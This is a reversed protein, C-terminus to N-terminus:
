RQGAPDQVQSVVWQLNQWLREVDERETPIAGISLRVMRSGDLTDPTVLARGSENLRRAWADTYADLEPGALASLDGGPRHRVCVTQLRVPVVLEWDDAAAVQRGLWRANEVDRRLRQRIAELGDIRLHMWLKMARFRRGLPVSWDRYQTVLDGHAASEASPIYSSDISMVGTLRRPNRVFLLSCDFATGLWKHPNLSISDAREIGEFREAFEPLLAASGAMAADVHLWMSHKNTIRAIADIPDFATVGTTGLTAVVAAPIRGLAIDEDVMEALASADIAQESDLPVFRLNQAGYGATLVARKVSTNATSAAYVILPAGLERMGGHHMSMNSAHERAAVMALFGGMSATDIVSGRWPDPLGLIDAFWGCVHEEVETLPPCAEWSLGLGGLGTSVLDGLVSALSVNGPFWAYYDPHQWHTMAPMIVQDLDAMIADFSEPTEPAPGLKSKVDGPQAQSFVPREGVTQRYDAIWDILRHGFERFEDPTM